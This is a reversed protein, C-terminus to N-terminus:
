RTSSRTPRRSRRARARDSFRTALLGGILSGGGWIGLLPGAAATSGLAGAAAAVGVEVAGFLVGVAVLVGVLTRM